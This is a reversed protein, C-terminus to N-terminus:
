LDFKITNKELQSDFQLRQDIISLSCTLKAKDM